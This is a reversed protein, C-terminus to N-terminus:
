TDGGVHFSILFFAPFTSVGRAQDLFDPLTTNGFMQWEMEIKVIKAM